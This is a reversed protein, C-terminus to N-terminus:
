FEISAAVVIAKQVAYCMSRVMEDWELVFLIFSSIGMSCLSTWDWVSLDYKEM